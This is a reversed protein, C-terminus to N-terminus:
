RSKGGTPKAPKEASPKERRPLVLQLLADALVLLMLLPGTILCALRWDLAALGLNLLALGALFLLLNLM